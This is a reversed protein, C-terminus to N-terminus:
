LKTWDNNLRSRGPPMNKLGPLLRCANWALFAVLPFALVVFPRPVPAVSSIAVLTGIVAAAIMLTIIPCVICGVALGEDEKALEAARRRVEEDDM